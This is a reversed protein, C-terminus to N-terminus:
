AWSHRPSRHRGTGVCLAPLLVYEVFLASGWRGLLSLRCGMTFQIGQSALRVKLFVFNRKKEMDSILLVSGAGGRVSKIQLGM